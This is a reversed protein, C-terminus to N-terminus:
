SILEAGTAKFLLYSSTYDIQKTSDFCYLFTGLYNSHSVEIFSARWLSSPYIDRVFM